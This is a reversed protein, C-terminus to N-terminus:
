ERARKRESERGEMKICYKFERKWYTCVWVELEIGYKRDTLSQSLVKESLIYV